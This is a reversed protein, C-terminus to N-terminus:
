MYIYINKNINMFCISIYGLIALIAVNSIVYFLIPLFLTLRNKLKM